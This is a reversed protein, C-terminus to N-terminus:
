RTGAKRKTTKRRRRAAYVSDMEAVARRAAEQAVERILVKQDCLLCGACIYRDGSRRLTVFEYRPLMDEIDLPDDGRVGKGRLPLVLPVTLDDGQRHSVPLTIERLFGHFDLTVVTSM